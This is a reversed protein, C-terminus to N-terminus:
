EDLVLFAFETECKTFDPEELPGILVLMESGLRALINAREGQRSPRLSM